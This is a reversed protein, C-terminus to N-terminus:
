SVLVEPDFIGGITENSVVSHIRPFISVESGAQVASPTVVTLSRKLWTQGNWSTASWADTGVTLAEADASYTDIVRPVGDAGMYEVLMSVDSRTWSALSSELLFNLTLTRAAEPLDGSAPIVKSLRPLVAPNLRSVNGATVSPVAFVSWPTIGDNLRANLTPRSAGFRWEAFLLGTQEIVFDRTGYQSAAFVGRTGPAYERATSTLLAPGLRVGGMECNKFIVSQVGSSTLAATFFRSGPVFGVFRVSDFLYRRESASAILSADALGTHPVLPATSRVECDIMEFQQSYNTGSGFFMPDPNGPVVLRCSKFTPTRGALVNTSGLGITVNCSTEATTGPAALEVGEFVIPSPTRIAVSSSVLNTTGFQQIRFGKVGSSYTRARIQAFADNSVSFFGLTYGSASTKQWVLVPEPGDEPWVTADDIEFLVPAASSGMAPISPMFSSTGTPATLTKGSRVRVKDGPSLAGAFPGAAAWLGYGALAIASAWVTSVENFLYGWCGGTGGAFSITAPSSVNNLTHTACILGAHTASAQRTMIQCTGAPAGAAPGRAYVHNRVQSLQTFSAPGTAVATSANIATALNNACVDASTARTFTITQGLVAIVGSSPVGTFVVSATAPTGVAKATGDGDQAQGWTPVAAYAGYAGHDCYKEAM